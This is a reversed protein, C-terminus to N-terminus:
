PQTASKYFINYDVDADMPTGGSPTSTAISISVGTTFTIGIGFVNAGSVPPIALVFKLFGTSSTTGGSALNYFGIYAAVSNKNYFYWGYVQAPETIVNYCSSGGSEAGYVAAVGGTTSASSSVPVLDNTAITVRQTGTDRVGTGMSIQQSNMQVLNTITGLTQAAALSVTANLNAATPQSVIANLNAATAQTVAVTGDVTISAGNDSIPVASQNSAIVVPQSDDMVEQGNPNVPNYAM